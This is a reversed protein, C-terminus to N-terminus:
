SSPRHFFLSGSPCWDGEIEGTREYLYFDNGKENGLYIFEASLSGDPDADLWYPAYCPRQAFEIEQGSVIGFTNVKVYEVGDIVGKDGSMHFVEDPSTRLDSERGHLYAFAADEELDDQLHTRYASEEFEERSLVFRQNPECNFNDESHLNKSCRHGKFIQYVLLDDGRVDDVVLLCGEVVQCTDPVFHEQYNELIEYNGRPEWDHTVWEVYQKHAAYHAFSLVGKKVEDGEQWLCSELRDRCDATESTKNDHRQRREGLYSEIMQSLIGSVLVVVPIYIYHKVNM